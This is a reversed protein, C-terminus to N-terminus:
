GGGGHGYLYGVRGINMKRAYPPIIFGESFNPYYLIVDHGIIKKM